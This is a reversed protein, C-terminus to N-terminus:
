WHKKIWQFVGHTQDAIANILNAATVADWLSYRSSETWQSAIGWAAALNPDAKSDTDFQAKLGATGLLRELSHTYVENVFAKDPITDPLFAKAICAKLALEVAYGSLYYASSARGAGLLLQADDLRTEALSCLDLRTLM